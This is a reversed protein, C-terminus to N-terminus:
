IHEVLMKGIVPNANQLFSLVNKADNVKPFYQHIKEARELLEVDNIYYENEDGDWEMNHNAYFKEHILKAIQEIENNYAKMKDTTSM